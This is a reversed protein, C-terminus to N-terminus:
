RVEIRVVPQDNLARVIIRVPVLFHNTGVGEAIVTFPAHRRARHGPHRRPVGVIPFPPPHLPRHARLGVVNTYPTVPSSISSYPPAFPDGPVSYGTCSANTLMRAYLKLKANM